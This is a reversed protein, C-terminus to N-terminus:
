VRGPYGPTASQHEALKLVGVAQLFRDMMTHGNLPFYIIWWDSNEIILLDDTSANSRQYSGLNAFGFLGPAVIWSALFTFINWGTVQDWWPALWGSLQEQFVILLIITIILPVASNDIHGRQHFM